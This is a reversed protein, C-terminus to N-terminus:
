KYFNTDLIGLCIRQVFGRKVAYDIYFSRKVSPLSVSHFLSFDLFIFNANFGNFKKLWLKTEDRVGCLSFAPSKISFFISRYPRIDRAVKLLVRFGRVYSVGSVLCSFNSCPFLIIGTLWRPEMSLVRAYGRERIKWSPPSAREMIRIKRGGGEGECKTM